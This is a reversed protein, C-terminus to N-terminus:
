SIEAKVIKTFEEKTMTNNICSLLSSSSLFEPLELAKLLKKRNQKANPTGSLGLEFLDYSTVPNQNDSISCSINAKNLANQLVEKSM